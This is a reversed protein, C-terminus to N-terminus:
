WFRGKTQAWVAAPRGVKIGYQESGAFDRVNFTIIWSADANVATELVHEDSPDRLTPRVRFDIVTAFAQAMVDDLAVKIAAADLGSRAVIAPRTLVAEYETILATSIAALGPRALCADLWLRSMGNPSCLAAVMVDTDLVVRMRGNTARAAAASLGGSTKAHNRFEAM